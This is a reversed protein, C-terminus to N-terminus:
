SVIVAGDPAAEYGAGSPPRHVDLSCRREDGSAAAAEPRGGGPPQVRGARVDDDGVEVLGLALRHRILQAVPGHEDSGVDGIFVAHLARDVRGGLAARQPDRDDGVAAAAPRAREVLRAQGGRLLREGCHDADEQRGGVVDVPQRRGGDRRGLRELVALAADDDVGGRDGGEVARDALGGVRRGLAADDRHRQREGAVEGRGADPHHRDCGASEERGREAVGVRLLQVGVPPGGDRERLPHAPGVLVSLEGLLDGLVNVEVALRDAEVARQTKGGLAGFLAGPRVRCCM